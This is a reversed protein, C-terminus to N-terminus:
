SAKSLSYAAERSMGNANTIKYTQGGRRFENSFVTYGRESRRESFIFPHINVIHKETDYEAFSHYEDDCKSYGASDHARLHLGAVKGDFSEIKDVFFDSTTADTDYIIDKDKQILAGKGSFVYADYRVPATRSKHWTLNETVILIKDAKKSYYGEGYIRVSPYEKKLVEIVKGIAAAPYQDENFFFSGNELIPNSKEYVTYLKSFDFESLWKYVTREAKIKPYGTKEFDEFSDYWSKDLFQPIYRVEAHKGDDLFNDVYFNSGRCDKPAISVCLREDLVYAIKLDQGITDLKNKLKKFAANEQMGDLIKEINM